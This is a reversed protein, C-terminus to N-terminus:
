LRVGGDMGRMEMWCSSVFFVFFVLYLLRNFDRTLWRTYDM